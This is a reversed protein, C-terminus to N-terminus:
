AHSTPEIGVPPVLPCIGNTSLHQTRALKGISLSSTYIRYHHFQCVYQALFAPETPEFGVKRVLAARIAIAWHLSQTGGIRPPICIAIAGGTRVSAYYNSYERNM